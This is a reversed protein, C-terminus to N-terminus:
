YYCGPAWATKVLILDSDLLLLHKGWDCGESQKELQSKISLLCVLSTFKEKAELSCPPVDKKEECGCEESSNDPSAALLRQLESQCAKGDRFRWHRWWPRAALDLPSETNGQSSKKGYAGERGVTGNGKM